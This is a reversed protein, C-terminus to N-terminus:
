FSSGPNVSVDGTGGNANFDALLLDSVYELETNSMEKITNSGDYYVIVNNGM